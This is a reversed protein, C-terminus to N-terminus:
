MLKQVLYCLCCVWCWWLIDILCCGTVCITYASNLLVFDFCVVILVPTVCPPTSEGVSNLRYVESMRDGGFSLTFSTVYASSLEIIKLLVFILVAFCCTCRCKCAQDISRSLGFGKLVCIMSNVGCGASCEVLSFYCLM